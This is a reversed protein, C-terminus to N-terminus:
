AAMESRASRRGKAMVSMIKGAVCGLAIVVCGVVFMPVSTAVVAIGSILTGIFIVTVATWAAPTNGHSNGHGPHAGNGAM